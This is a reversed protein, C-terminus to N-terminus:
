GSNQKSVSVVPKSRNLSRMTPIDSATFGRSAHYTGKASAVVASYAAMTFGSNSFSAIALIPCFTLNSRMTSRRM